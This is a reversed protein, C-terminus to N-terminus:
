DIRVASTLRAANIAIGTRAMLVQVKRGAEVEFRAKEVLFISRCMQALLQVPAGVYAAWDVQAGIGVRVLRDLTSKRHGARYEFHEGLTVVRYRDNRLM